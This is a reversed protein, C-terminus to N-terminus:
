SCAWGFALQERHQPCRTIHGVGADGWMYPLDAESGSDLQFLLEMRTACQPCDPYEIGQVWFPWGGLKHGQRPFPKVEWDERASGSLEVGLQSREESNPFDQGEQWGIIARCPLEGPCALASIGGPDAGDLVRVAMAASFAQWARHKLECPPKKNTCYFLQLLGSGWSEGHQAPLGALELQLFLPMPQGCSCAPAQSGAHLWPRGGFHSRAGDGAPGTTPIYCARRLSLPGTDRPSQPVEAASDM